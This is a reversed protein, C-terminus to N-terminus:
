KINVVIWAKTQIGVSAFDPVFIRTYSNMQFVVESLSHPLSTFPAVFPGLLVLLFRWPCYSSLVHSRELFEAMAHLPCCPQSTQIM